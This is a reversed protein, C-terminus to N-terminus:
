NGTLRDLGGVSEFPSIRDGRQVQIEPLDSVNIRFYYSWEGGLLRREFALQWCHIKRLVSWSQSTNDGNRLDYQTSYQVSWKVTPNWRSDFVVRSSPSGGARWQYTHTVDFDWTGANGTTLNGQLLDRGATDYPELPPVALSDVASSDTGSPKAARRAVMRSDVRFRTSVSTGRLDGNYPDHSVSWSQNVPATPLVGLSSVLDTLPKANRDRALFDYSISQSLSLVDYSKEVEGRKLKSKLLNRVSFSGRNTKSPSGGIGAFTFFRDRRVGTSDTFFNGDFEPAWSWSVSPDIVHRFGLLPGVPRLFTGYLTTAATATTSFTGRTPNKEGLVDRDIWAAETSLAPTLRLYQRISGTGQLDLGMSAGTHEESNGLSNVSRVHAGRSDLRSYLGLAKPGFPRNPMNFTVVPLSEDIVGTDLNERHSVNVLFSRNSGPFTKSLSAYSYLDRNLRNPDDIDRYISTSSLFQARANVDVTSGIKQSHEFEVATDKANSSADRNYKLNLRGSFRYRLNYRSALSAIVQDAEPYFDFSPTFDLYDNTAWYYGLKRISKGKSGSVGLEVSPFLFGSHRDKRLSAVYFPLALIPIDRVHLVVPKAVIKDDPYIKMRKSTFHFHPHKEDCSTFSAGHVALVDNPLRWVDDGSYWGNEFQTRGGVIEGKESTLHYRMDSGTIEEQKDILVPSPDGSADMVEKNADFDVTGSKLVMTKYEVEAGNELHMTDKSRIYRIQPARYRVLRGSELLAQPALNETSKGGKEPGLRYEGTGGGSVRVSDVESKTFWVTLTDGSVDNWEESKEPSEDPFFKSRASGVVNVFVLEDDEFDLVMRDGFLLNERPLEDSAVRLWAPRLDSAGQTSDSAVSAGVAPKPRPASIAAVAANKGGSPGPSSTSTSDAETEGHVPAATSDSEAEAEGHVPAATSDAEFRNSVLAAGTVIVRRKGPVDDQLEIRDGRVETSGEILRPSGLLVAGETARNLVASDAFAEVRGRVIRVEGSAYAIDRDPDYTLDRSFIHIPEEDGADRFEATPSESARAVRNKRDYELVGGRVVVGSKEDVLKANSTARFTENQMDYQVSDADLTASPDAMAVRGQFDFRSLDRSWSGQDAIATGTPSEVVVGESFEAIRRTRDYIASPGKATMSDQTMVVNGSLLVRTMLELYRAADCTARLTGHTIEVDTEFSFVRSGDNAKVASSTASSINWPEEPPAPKSPAGEAAILFFLAAALLVSGGSRRQM